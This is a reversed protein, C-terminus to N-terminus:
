SPVQTTSVPFRVVVCTGRGPASRIEVDGGLLSARERLGLLGYSDPKRPDQPSFGIGDDVVGITLLGNERAISIKVQSARAHKGINVLSEQIIRFM